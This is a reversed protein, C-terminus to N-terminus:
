FFISQYEPKLYGSMDSLSLPIEVFGREYYSLEYPPYYLVLNQGDIYFPQNAIIQPKQWLGMYKEPNNDVVEALRTNVMDIYSDDAFLDCLNLALCKKTDINKTLRFSNKKTKGVSASINVTASFFGEVNIHETNEVLFSSADGIKKADKSFTNLHNTVVSEIEENIAKELSESSFGSYAPIQCSASIKETEFSKDITRTTITKSCGGLMLLTFALTVAACPKIFNHM